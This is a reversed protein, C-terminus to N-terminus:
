QFDEQGFLEKSEPGHQLVVRRRILRLSRLDSPRLDDLVSFLDSIKFFVIISDPQIVNVDRVLRNNKFDYVYVVGELFKLLRGVGSSRGSAEPEDATRVLEVDRRAFYDRLIEYHINWLNEGPRVLRIGYYVPKEPKPIPQRLYPAATEGPKPAVPITRGGPQQQELRQKIEQITTTEEGAKFSETAAVMHDVGQSSASDEQRQQELRQKVGQITTTEEGVTFPEKATVIHDVSRDLHFIEKRQQESSEVSVSPLPPPPPLPVSASEQSPQLRKAPQPIPEHLVPGSTSATKSGAGGEAATRLSSSEPQSPAQAEAALDSASNVAPTPRHYLQTVWVFLAAALIIVFIIAIATQRKSM